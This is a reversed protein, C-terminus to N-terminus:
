KKITTTKTTERTTKTTTQNQNNSKQNNNTKQIADACNYKNQQKIIDSKIQLKAM